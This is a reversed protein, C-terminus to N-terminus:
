RCNKIQAEEMDNYLLQLLKSKRKHVNIKDRIYREFFNFCSYSAFTNNKKIIIQYCNRFDVLSQYVYKVPFKLGFVKRSGVLFTQRNRYEQSLGKPGALNLLTQPMFYDMSVVVSDNIVPIESEAGPSMLIMERGSKRLFALVKQGTEYKNWRFSGALGAFKLIKLTVKKHAQSQYELYFHREEVKTIQGYVVLDASLALDFLKVYTYSAKAPLCLNLFLLTLSVKLVNTLSIHM